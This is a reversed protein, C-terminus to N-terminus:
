PCIRPVLNWRSKGQKWRSRARYEKMALNDISGYKAELLKYRVYMRLHSPFQRSENVEIWMRELIVFRWKDHSLTQRLSQRRRRGIWCCSVISSSFIHIHCWLPSDRAVRAIWSRSIWFGPYKVSGGQRNICMDWIPTWRICRCHFPLRRSINM